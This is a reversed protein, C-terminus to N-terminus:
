RKSAVVYDGAHLHQVPEADDLSDRRVLVYDYEDLLAELNEGEAVPKGLLFRLAGRLVYDTSALRAEPAHERLYRVVEHTPQMERNQLLEPVQLRLWLLPPILLVLLLAVTALRANAGATALYGTAHAVVVGWAIGSVVFCPWLYRPLQGPTYALWWQAFLPASLWLTLVGPSVRKACAIAGGALAIVPYILNGMTSDRLLRLLNKGIPELGFLLYHQYIGLTSRRWM